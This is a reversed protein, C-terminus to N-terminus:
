LSLPMVVPVCQVPIFSSPVWVFGTVCFCVPFSSTCLCSATQRIGTKKRGPHLASSTSPPPSPFILIPPILPLSFFLRLIFASASFCWNFVVAAPSGSLARLSLLSVINSSLFSLFFGWHLFPPTPSFFLRRLISAPLCPSVPLCPLPLFLRRYIWAGLDSTDLCAPLFVLPSPSFLAIIISYPSPSFFSSHEQSSQPLCLFHSVSVGFRSLAALFVHLNVHESRSVPWGCVCCWYCFLPLLPLLLLIEERLLFLVITLDHCCFTTFGSGVFIVIWSAVWEQPILSAVPSEQAENCPVNDNVARVGPSLEEFGTVAAVSWSSEM